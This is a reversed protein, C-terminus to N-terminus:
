YERGFVNVAAITGVREVQPLRELDALGERFGPEDLRGVSFYLDEAHAQERFRDFATATGRAGAAATLGVAGALGVALALGVWALWRRRFDARVRAGVAGM